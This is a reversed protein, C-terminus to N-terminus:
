RDRTRPLSLVETTPETTTSASPAPREALVVRPIGDRWHDDFGSAPSMAALASIPAGLPLVANEPIEGSSGLATAVAMGQDEATEGPVAATAIVTDGENDVCIDGWTVARWMACDEDAIASLAHDMIMKDSAVLVAGDVAYGAVILPLPLACATLAAAGLVATAAPLCSRRKM